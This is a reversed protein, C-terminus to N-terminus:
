HATRCAPGGQSGAGRRRVPPHGGPAAEGAIHGFTYGPNPSNILDKADKVDGIGAGVPDVTRQFIETGVSKGLDKWGDVFKDVGEQGTLNHVRDFLWEM